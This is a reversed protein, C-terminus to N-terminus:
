ATQIPPDILRNPNWSRKVYLRYKGSDTHLVCDRELMKLAKQTVAWDTDDFWIYGNQKVKPVYLQVDRCSCAENHNGDIYLIDCPPIIQHCDQSRAQILVVFDEVQHKWVADVCEDHIKGINSVSTWWEINKPDTEGELASEVRWPDIGYIKGRGLQKLALAQSILSRGAFVGIEVLTEAGVSLVLDYMEGCREATTWGNMTPVVRHILEKPSMYLHVSHAYLSLHEM